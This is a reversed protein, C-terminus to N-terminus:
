FPLSFGVIIPTGTTGFESKSQGDSLAVSVTVPYQTAGSTVTVEVRMDNSTQDYILELRAKTPGEVEWSSKDENDSDPLHVSVYQDSVSTPPVATEVIITAESQSLGYRLLATTKTEM